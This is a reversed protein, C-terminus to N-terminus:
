VHHDYVRLGVSRFVNNMKVRSRVQKVREEAERLKRELDTEVEQGFGYPNPDVASVGMSVRPSASESERLNAEAAALRAEAERIRRETETM